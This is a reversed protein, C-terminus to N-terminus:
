HSLQDSRINDATGVLSHIRTGDGDKADFFVEFNKVGAAKFRQLMDLVTKFATRDDPRIFVPDGNGNKGIAERLWGEIEPASKPQNNLRYSTGAGTTTIDIIILSNARASAALSFAFLM